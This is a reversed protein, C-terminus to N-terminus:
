EMVITEDIRFKGKLRIDESSSGIQVEFIGAEAIEKMEKDLFTLDKPHIIFEVEKSEGPKLTIREFGKLEKEYTVISSILDKIHLQTVADGKHKGSNTM